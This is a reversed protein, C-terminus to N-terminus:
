NLRKSGMLVFDPPAPLFGTDAISNQGNSSLLYKAFEQYAPAMPKGPARNVFMYFSRVLPYNGGYVAEQSPAEAKQGNKTAVSIVKVSSYWSQMSSFAIGAPNTVVAEALSM